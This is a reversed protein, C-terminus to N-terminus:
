LNHYDAIIFICKDYFSCMYYIMDVRVDKLQITILFLIISTTM